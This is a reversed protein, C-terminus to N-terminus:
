KKLEEKPRLRNTKIGNFSATYTVYSHEIADYGTMLVTGNVTTERMSITIKGTQAFIKTPLAVAEAQAKRQKELQTLFIRKELLSPSLFFFHIGAAIGVAPKLESVITTGLASMTTSESNWFFTNRANRQPFGEVTLLYPNASADPPISLTLIAKAGDFRETHVTGSLTILFQLTSSGGQELISEEPIEPQVTRQRPLDPIQEEAQCTVSNGMSIVALVVAACLVHHLCSSNEHCKM